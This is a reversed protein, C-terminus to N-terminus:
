FIHNLFIIFNRLEKIQLNEEKKFGNINIKISELFRIWNKM